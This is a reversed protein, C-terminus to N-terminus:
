PHEDPDTPACNCTSTSSGSTAQCGTTTPSCDNGTCQCTAGNACEVTVTCSSAYSREPLILFLGGVLIIYVAIFNILRKQKM